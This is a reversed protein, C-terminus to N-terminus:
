AANEPLAVEELYVPNGSRLIRSLYFRHEEDKVRLRVAAPYLLTDRRFSVIETKGSRHYLVITM